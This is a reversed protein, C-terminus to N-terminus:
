ARSGETDPAAGTRPAGNTHSASGHTGTSVAGGSMEGIFVSGGSLQYVHQEFRDTRYGHQKLAERMGNVVRDQITKIYRTVDMEQFPSLTQTSAEERLSVRPVDPAPDRDATETRVQAGFGAAAGLGVAVGAAPADRLARVAGRWWEEPLEEMLADIKKFDKRVPGLVYPVVELVLMNGQTHVRVLVTVVVQEHWAGVRIRLFVRRGEGGEDVAEECHREVQQRDYVTAGRGNPWSGNQAGRGSGLQLPEDREVGGPLFVFEEIELDCLRDRGSEKASARLTRLAPKIMDLASRATLPRGWQDPLGDGTTQHPVGDAAPKPATEPKLELAFSWPKRPSGVGVFPSDVDYLTLSAAQERSISAQLDEYLPGAPLTPQVAERFTWKSLWTALARRNELQHWWVVLAILLPFILPYPTQVTGDLVGFVYRIWYFGAFLRAGVGVLRGAGQVAQAVQGSRRASLGDTGRASVTAAFWLAVAVMAYLQSWPLPMGGTLNLAEDGSYFATLVDSFQVDADEGWQDGLADWFTVVDSVFFGAWVALLLLATTTEQRVVRLAHALVPLVDVGLPPAVPRERHGVLEGIVRRRFSVDLCVGACLLRTAETRSYPRPPLNEGSVSM